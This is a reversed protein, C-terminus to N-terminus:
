EHAWRLSTNLETTVNSLFQMSMLRVYQLIFANKLPAIGMTGIFNVVLIVFYHSFITRKSNYEMM